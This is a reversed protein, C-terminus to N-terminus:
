SGDPPTTRADWQDCRLGSRADAGGSFHQDPTHPVNKMASSSPAPWRAKSVTPLGKRGPPPKFGADQGPKTLNAVEV